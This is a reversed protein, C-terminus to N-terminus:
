ADVKSFHWNKGPIAALLSKTYEHKPNAFLKATPGVEIVKGYQM